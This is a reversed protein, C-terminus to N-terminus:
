DSAALLETLRMLEGDFEVPEPSMPAQVLFGSSSLAKLVEQRTPKASTSGSPPLETGLVHEIVLSTGRWKLRRFGTIPLTAVCRICITQGRLADAFRDEVLVRVCLEPEDVYDRECQDCTTPPLTRPKSPSERQV